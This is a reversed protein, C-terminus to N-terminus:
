ADRHKERLAGDNAAVEIGRWVNCIRQRRRVVLPLAMIGIGLIGFTAPEPTSIAGSVALIVTAATNNAQNFTMSVLMENTYDGTSIGNFLSGMNLITEYLDPNDPTGSVVSSALSIRGVGNVAVGFRNGDPTTGSTNAFWDPAAYDTTVSRGDSFHLTVTGTNDAGGVLSTALIALERFKEGAPLTLTGHAATGSSLDLVNSGAGYSQLQFTTVAVNSSGVYQSIIQGNQPLGSGAPAGPLGSEYFVSNGGPRLLTEVSASAGGTPIGSAPIVSNQNFGTVKIPSLVPLGSFQPQGVLFYSIGVAAQDIVNVPQGSAMPQNWSTAYLGHYRHNALYAMTSDALGLWKSQHDLQYLQTYGDILVWAMDGPNSIEGDASPSNWHNAAAAALAEDKQLYAQNKTIQFFLGNAIMMAGTNYSWETTQVTGDLNIHDYYLGDAPNELNANVWKYLNTATSLYISQGTSQYLNLADIIAPANSITNKSTKNQEHWFIGGGLASSEGSLVFNFTQQAQSLYASNDTVQYAQIFGWDLWENDDYYRDLPDNGPLVDYGGIGNDTRWYGSLGQVFNSLVSQQADGAGVAQGIMLLGLSESWAYAASGSSQYGGGGTPNATQSLYQQGPIQFDSLTTNVVNQGLLQFDNAPGVMAPNVAAGALGPAFGAAVAIFGKAALPMFRRYMTLNFRTICSRGPEIM